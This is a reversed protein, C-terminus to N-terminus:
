LDTPHPVSSSSCSPNGPPIEPTLNATTTFLEDEDADLNLDIAFSNDDNSDLNLDLLQSEFDNQCHEEHNENDYKLLIGGNLVYAAVQIQLMTPKAPLGNLCSEASSACQHINEKLYILKQKFAKVLSPHAEENMMQLAEQFSM